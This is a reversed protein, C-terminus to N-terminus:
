VLEDLPQPELHKTNREVALVITRRQSGDPTVCVAPIVQRGEELALRLVFSGDGQQQAPKGLLTLEARPHTQGHLVLEADIRFEFEREVKGATDASRPRRADCSQLPPLDANRKVARGNGYVYAPQKAARSPRVKASEALVFFKGSPARYGLQVRYTHGPQGVAVYWHDIPHQIEVDQIHTQTTATGEEDTVDHVRLVPAAQRWEVGLAAEARNLIRSTLTWRAFLWCPGHGDVHLLDRVRSEGDVPHTAPLRCAAAPNGNGRDTSVRRPGRSRRGNDGGNKRNARRRRTARALADVLEVKRMAHWGLVQYDRAMQALQKRTNAQLDSRTM